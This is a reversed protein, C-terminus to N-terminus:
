KNKKIIYHFKNEDAFCKDVYSYEKNTKTDILQMLKFVEMANNVFGDTILVHFKGDKEECIEVKGYKELDTKTLM